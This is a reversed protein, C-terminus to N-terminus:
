KEDDLHRIQRWPTSIRALGDAQRSESPTTPSGLLRSGVERREKARDRSTQWALNAFSIRRM